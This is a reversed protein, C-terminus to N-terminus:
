PVPPPQLVPTYVMGATNGPGGLALSTHMPASRGDSVGPMFSPIGAGGYGPNPVGYAAAAAAILQQQQQQVQAQRADLFMRGREGLQHQAETLVGQTQPNLAMTGSLPLTASAPVGSGLSPQGPTWGGQSM